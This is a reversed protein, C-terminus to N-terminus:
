ERGAARDGGVGDVGLAFDVVGDEADGGAVVGVLAPFCLSMSGRRAGVGGGLAEVDWGSGWSSAAALGGVVDAAISAPIPRVSRRSRVVRFRSASQLVSRCTPTPLAVSRPSAIVGPRM